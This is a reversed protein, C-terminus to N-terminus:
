TLPLFSSNSQIASYASIHSKPRTQVQLGHGREVLHNEDDSTYENKDTVDAADHDM